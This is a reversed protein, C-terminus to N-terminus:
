LFPGKAGAGAMMADGRAIAADLRRLDRAIRGSPVPLGEPLKDLTDRAGKAADVLAKLAAREAATM